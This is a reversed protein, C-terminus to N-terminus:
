ARDQGQNEFFGVYQHWYHFRSVTETNPSAVVVVLVLM